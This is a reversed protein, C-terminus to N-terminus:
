NTLLKARQASRKSVAKLLQGEEKSVMMSDCRMRAKVLLFNKGVGTNHFSQALSASPILRPRSVVRARARVIGWLFQWPLGLSLRTLSSKRNEAWLLASTRTGGRSLEEAEHGEERGSARRSCSTQASSASRLEGPCCEEGPDGLDRMSCHISTFEGGRQEGSGKVHTHGLRSAQRGECNECPWPAAGTTLRRRPSSAARSRDGCDGRRASYPSTTTPGAVLASASATQDLPADSHM